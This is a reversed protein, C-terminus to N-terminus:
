QQVDEDIEPLEGALQGVVEACINHLTDGDIDGQIYKQCATTLILRTNAMVSIVQIITQEM